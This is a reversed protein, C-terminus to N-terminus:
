TNVDEASAILEPIKEDKHLTDVNLTGITVDKNGKMLRGHQRTFTKNETTSKEVAVQFGMVPRVGQKVARHPIFM